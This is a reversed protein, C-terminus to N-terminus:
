FAVVNPWCSAANVHLANQGIRRPPKPQQSPLQSTMPTVMQPRVSSRAFSKGNKPAVLKGNILHYGSLEKALVTPDLIPDIPM